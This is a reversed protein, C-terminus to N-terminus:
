FISPIAVPILGSATRMDRTVLHIRDVFKRDMIKCREYVAPDDSVFITYSQKSTAANFAAAIEELEDATAKVHAQRIDFIWDWGGLAKRQRLLRLVTEGMTDTVPGPMATVTVRKLGESLAVKTSM